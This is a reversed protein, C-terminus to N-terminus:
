EKVLKPLRYSLASDPKDSYHHAQDISGSFSVSKINRKDYLLNTKAVRRGKIEDDLTKEILGKAKLKRERKKELEALSDM